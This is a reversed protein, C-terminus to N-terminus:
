FSGDKRNYITNRYLPHTLRKFDFNRVAAALRLIFNPTRAFKRAAFLKGMLRRRCPKADFSPLSLKVSPVKRANLMSNM